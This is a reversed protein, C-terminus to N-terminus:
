QTPPALSEGLFATKKPNPAMLRTSDQGLSIPTALPRAM